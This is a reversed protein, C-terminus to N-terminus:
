HNRVTVCLMLKCHAPVDELVLHMAGRDELLLFLQGPGIEYLDEGVGLFGAHRDLEILLHVVLVDFGLEDTHLLLLQSIILLPFGEGLAEDSALLAFHGAEQQFRLSLQSPRCYDVQISRVAKVESLDVM